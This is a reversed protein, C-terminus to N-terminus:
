HNAGSFAGVNKKTVIFALHDLPGEFSKLGRSAPLGITTM